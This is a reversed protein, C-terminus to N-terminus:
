PAIVPMPTQHKREKELMFKDIKVASEEKETYQVKSNFDASKVMQERTLVVPEKFLTQDTPLDGLRQDILGIVLAAKDVPGTQKKPIRFDLPNDTRASSTTSKLVSGALM